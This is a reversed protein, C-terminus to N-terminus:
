ASELTGLLPCGDASQPAKQPAREPADRRGFRIPPSGAVVRIRAAVRWFPGNPRGDSIRTGVRARRLPGPRAGRGAAPPITEMRDFFGRCVANDGDLTKHCVIASDNGVAEDIMQRVRGRQLHM